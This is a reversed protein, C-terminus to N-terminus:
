PGTLHYRWQGDPHRLCDTLIYGEAFAAQLTERQWHRWAMGLSPDAARIAYIDDPLPLALARGDLTAAASPPALLGSQRAGATLLQAGEPLQEHTRRAAAPLQEHALQEVRPSVLWWDVQCRDSPTGANIGEEVEGYVNVHYTNCVAGLRHLNFAGNTRILPDYTWTVWRTAGQALIAARQALKLRLGLGTGRWAPLVGAM